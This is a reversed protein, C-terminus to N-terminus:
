GIGGYSGLLHIVCDLKLSLEKDFDDTMQEELKSKELLLASYTLLNELDGNAHCDDCTTYLFANDYEWPNRKPLYCSHHVTLSKDGHGCVRCLWRDREFIELRKKQWRPDKLKEAYTM